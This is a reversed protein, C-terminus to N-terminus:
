GQDNRMALKMEHEEKTLLYNGDMMIQPFSYGKFKDNGKICSNGVKRITIEGLMETAEYVAGKEFIGALDRGALIDNFGDLSTFRTVSM